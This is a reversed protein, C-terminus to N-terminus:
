AKARISKILRGYSWEHVQVRYQKAYEKQKEVTGPIKQEARMQVESQVLERMDELYPIVISGAHYTQALDIIAKALLRDI